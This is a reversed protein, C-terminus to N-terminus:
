RGEQAERRKMLYRVYISFDRVRLADVVPPAFGFV